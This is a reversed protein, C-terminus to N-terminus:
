NADHKPSREEAEAATKLAGLGQSWFDSLYANLEEMREPTASYLRKAGERRETILGAGRLVGLHQSIAPRSVDFHAAVEGASLEREGVLLLIERRRPEALAKLTVDADIVAIM